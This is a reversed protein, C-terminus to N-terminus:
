EVRSARVGVGAKLNCKAKELFSKNRSGIRLCSKGMEKIAKTTLVVDKPPVLKYTVACVIKYQDQIKRAQYVQAKLSITPYM